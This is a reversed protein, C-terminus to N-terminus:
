ARRRRAVLGAAVMLAAAGPTPVYTGPSGVDTAPSVAAFSNQADGVVSKVWTTDINGFLGSGDVRPAWASFGNTRVTGAFNQDGYTLRDVLNSSADYINIEDNRGLNNTNGGLIVVSASLNWRARFASESAETVIVSQGPAIVGLASLSFSGATRSDDDFSWGTLDVPTAGLNTLEVFEFNVQTSGNLGQYMFETIAVGALAQGAALGVVGITLFTKM